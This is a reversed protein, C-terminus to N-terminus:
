VWLKSVIWPRKHFYVLYYNHVNIKLLFLRKLSYKLNLNEFLTRFVANWFLGRRTWFQPCAGPGWTYEPKRTGILLGRWPGSDDVICPESTTYQYWMSSSLAGCKFNFKKGEKNMERRTAIYSLESYRESTCIPYVVAEKHFNKGTCTELPWSM